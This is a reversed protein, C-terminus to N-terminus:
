APFFYRMGSNGIANVSRQEPRQLLERAASNASLGKRQTHFRLVRDRSAIWAGFLARLDAEHTAADATPFLSLTMITPM